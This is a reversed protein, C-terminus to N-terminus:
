RYIVEFKEFVVPIDESFTKNIDLFERKFFREHEKRWYNLSLDGEGELQAEEETIENFKKIQTAITRIVCGKTGFFNTVISLEGARFPEENYHEYTWLSGCTAVKKGEYVLEFLEDACFEDGFYDVTKCVLDSNEPNEGISLLYSEWLKRTNEKM